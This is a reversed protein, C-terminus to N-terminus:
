SKHWGPLDTITKRSQNISFIHTLTKKWPSITKYLVFFLRIACVFFISFPFCVVFIRWCSFNFSVFFLLFLLLTVSLVSFKSLFKAHWICFNCLLFLVAVVIDDVVGYLSADFLALFYSFSLVVVVFVKM